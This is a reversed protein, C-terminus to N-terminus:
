KKLAKILELPKEIKKFVKSANLIEIGIVKGSNDLELNINPALEIFGEEVGNRIIIYLVDSKEDYVVKPYAESLWSGGGVKLGTNM